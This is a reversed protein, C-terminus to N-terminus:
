HFLMHLNFNLNLPVSHEIAELTLIDEYDNGVDYADNEVEYAYLSATLFKSKPSCRTLVFM